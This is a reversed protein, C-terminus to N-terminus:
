PGCILELSFSEFKSPNEACTFTSTRTMVLNGDVKKVDM